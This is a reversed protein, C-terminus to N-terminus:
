QTMCYNYKLKRLFRWVKGWLPEILKAEYWCHLLKEKGGCGRWCNNNTSNKIIAMRVPTFHYRMTTKIQMERIISFTARVYICQTHTHTHTHIHPNTAWDQRLRQSGMSQLEGHFEELLFVPTPQWEQGLSQVWTKQITPLNKVMLAVLSAWIYMITYLISLPFNSFLM